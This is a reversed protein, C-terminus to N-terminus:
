VMVYQRMGEYIGAYLAGATGDFFDLFGMKKQKRHNRVWGSLTVSRGLLEAKKAFLEKIDM